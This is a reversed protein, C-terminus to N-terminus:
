QSIDRLAHYVGLNISYILPMTLVTYLFAPLYGDMLAIFIHSYGPLVFWFAWLLLFLVGLSVIGSLVASGMTVNMKRKAVASLLCCVTGAAAACIGIPNGSSFDMLLGTIVGFSLSFLDSELLSVTVALGFVLVPYASFIPPILGSTEQMMFFLILEIVYATYRVLKNLNGVPPIM